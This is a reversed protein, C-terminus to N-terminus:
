NRSLKYFTIFVIIWGLLAPIGAYLSDLTTIKDLFYINRLVFSISVIFLVISTILYKKNNEM